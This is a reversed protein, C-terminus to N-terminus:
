SPTAHVMKALASLLPVIAPHIWGAVCGLPPLYNINANHKAASSDIRTTNPISEAHTCIKCDRIMQMIIKQRSDKRGLQEILLDFRIRKILTSNYGRSVDMSFHLSNM